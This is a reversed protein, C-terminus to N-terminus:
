GQLLVRSINFIPLFMAIVIFGVVVGLFVILIPELTSALASIAADTQEEYFQAIKSLMYELKGSREGVAIMRVMLPPFIKNEKLHESIPVGEQVSKKASFIVEEIIKNGSTKAVVDLSSTIPVGSKILTAFTRSFRTLSIKRFLDGLVPLKLLFLHYKKRGRPTSIYKKILFICIFIAALVLFFYKKLIQSINILIQTLLPLQAGLSSYLQSFTPVVKILLFSTMAITLTVVIAPYVMSGIVKRRLSAMKELYESLRQLIVPLNGSVEAADVMNIYILPFAQPYKRLSEALGSGKKLDTLISIIINKFNETEAQDKLIDLANVASIGSEILTTFQRSFIVLEKTKVKKIKSFAFITKKQKLSLIVSGQTRFHFIADEETDFSAIGKKIKGERTKIHYIFQPM